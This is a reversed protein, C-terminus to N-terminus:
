CEAESENPVVAEFAKPHGETFDVLGDCQLFIRTDGHSIRCCTKKNEFDRWWWFKIGLKDAVWQLLQLQEPSAVWKRPEVIHANDKLYLTVHRIDFHKENKEDLPVFSFVKDNFKFGMKIHEFTYKGPEPIKIDLTYEGLPLNGLIDTIADQSSNPLEVSDRDPIAM